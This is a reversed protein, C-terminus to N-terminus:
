KIELEEKRFFSIFALLQILIMILVGTNSLASVSDSSKSTYTECTCPSIIRLEAVNSQNGHADLVMYYVPTPTGEFGDEATFTVTGDDHVRWTGEGEVVLEKTTAINTGGVATGENWLIEGDAINILRITVGEGVEDNNLVDITTTAGETNADVADDSIDLNYIVPQEEERQEEPPTNDQTSQEDEEASSENDTSNDGSDYSVPAPVYFPMRVRSPKISSWGTRDTASYTFVVATNGGNPRVTLMSNNFDTINQEELVKVDDYYLVGGSPLTNITVIYPIGDERDSPLLNIVQVRRNPNLTLSSAVNKTIPRENIGFNINEISITSINIDVAGITNNWDVPLLPTTGNTDTTLILRYSTNATISDNGDFSYRGVVSSINSENNDNHADFELPYTAILSGVSNLLNVFLPTDGASSVRIGDVVGNNNGDDFINGSIKIGTFPMTVTAKTSEFGTRDTTTYEFTVVQEGDIPDIELKTNNFDTINLESSIEVDNYYLRGNTPLTKITVITPTNDEKDSINLTPVVVRTQQGPNQQEVEETDNAVPQQNIGFNIEPVSVEEVSVMVKGDRSGDSNAKTVEGNNVSGIGEGDFHNWNSPLTSTTQNAITSIVLNYTKNPEIYGDSANFHYAGTTDVKTSALVENSTNLLTIYLPETDVKEILTGFIVGNNDGDSYINGSVSIGTFPYNVTASNSEVGSNDITLYTFTVTPEGSNPDITLLTSNYDNIIYGAEVAINDYYLTGNTPLTLIKIKTPIKDENDSIPLPPLIVRTDGGPNLVSAINKNEAKPRENIGFNINPIDVKLVDVDIRGDALGDLENDGLGIQEGDANNWNEPLSATTNDETTLIVTYNKNNLIGDHNDFLYNGDKDIAKSALIDNSDRDILRAFLNMSDDIKTGDVKNNDNGDAYVSGSIELGDFPMIVTAEDSEVGARDVTTYKFTVNLDGDNPDVTFLSQNVDEFKANDVVLKNDYYLKANSPKKTIVITTPTIDEIDSIDFIPVTVNIDGGPNFQIAEMKDNAVPKKNISFDIDIIDDRLVSIAIVGNHTNDTSWNAPLKLTTRNAEDSLVLTYKTYARLGDAVDFTYNGDSNLAKTAVAKKDKVLTIYLQNSDANNTLNGDVVGNGNGDHYLHGSIKPVFLGADINPNDESIGLEISDTKFTTINFDSDKERNDGEAQDSLAYSNKIIEVTYNGDSLKEFKYNGNSDTTVMYNSAFKGTPNKVIAGDKDRLRLQVGAVGSEGDDQIGDRNEDYWVLNSITSNGFITLMVSAESSEEEEDDTSTYNFFVNGMFGTKPDFKLGQAEELTLKDGINVVTTGDSLYLIGSQSDPLSKITFHDIDSDDSANLDEIDVAGLTNVIENNNLDQSDPIKNYRFNQENVSVGNVIIDLTEQTELAYGETAGSVNVLYDGNFINTFEYAGDVNDPIVESSVLTDNIDIIDNNNEDRYLKVTVGEMSSNDEQKYAKGTITLTSIIGVDFHRYQQNENLTKTITMGTTDNDFDSVNIDSDKKRNAGANLQTFRYYDPLIAKVKYETGATLEEFIYRGNEDTTTNTEKSDDKYLLEMSIGSAGIENKDQIGDADYDLWVFDGLSTTPVFASVDNSLTPLTVGTAYASTTNTYIDGKSNDSTHLFLNFICTKDIDLSSANLRVATIASNDYGCSGSDVGSSTGECWTSNSEGTPSIDIERPDRNTYYWTAGSCALEASAEAFTLTGHFATPLDRKKNNTSTTTFNFGKAGDGNFPLIDIMDVNTLDVSPSGNRAYSSFSVDGGQEVFPTNVEKTIFLSPPIVVSVNKNAKRISLSSGDSPASIVTYTSNVGKKTYASVVFRYEINPLAQNVTREGLDWVLVEGIGSDNCYTKLSDDLDTNNCDGIQPDGISGSGVVYKLGPALMETIKVNSSETSDVDTTFTSVINATVEESPKVTTKNLTKTTRVKGKVLIARDAKYGSSASNPYENLRRHSGHWNDDLSAFLVSDHMGSYNVVETGTEVGSLDDASKVKLNIIFGATKHAPIGNPISLRIKKVDSTTGIDTSWTGSTCENIVEDSNDATLTPTFTDDTSYEITYNLEDTDGYLTVAEVVNYLDTDIVDCLITDNFDKNGSNSAYVVAGFERGPTVIGDASYFGNTVDPLPTSLHNIDSVFYKRYDGGVYGPGYFYLPVVVSNDKTSETDGGFNSQGSVSIPNFSTLTNNTDLKYTDNSGNNEDNRVDNLPVFIDIVGSAIPLRTKPIPNGNIYQTPVHDLSVDIGSYTIKVTKDDEPTCELGLDAENSGVSRNLNDDHKWPYPEYGGAGEISCSSFEANPSIGSIDDTIELKFKGNDNAELAENGLVASIDDVEGAVEDAELLYAYRILYGSQNEDNKDIYSDLYTTSVHKKQINWMPKATVTLEDDTSDTKADLGDSEITFSIEGTKTNNPTNANVKVHFPLDEAYNSQSVPRVCTITLGDDSISSDDECYIPLSEWKLYNKGDFSPLTSSLTVSGDVATKNWGATVEFIDNTRVILDGTYFDDSPDTTGNDDYGSDDYMDCGPVNNNNDNASDCVVRGNVKLGIQSLDGYIGGTKSFKTVVALSGANLTTGLLFTALLPVFRLNM